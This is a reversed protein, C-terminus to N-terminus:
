NIDVSINGINTVRLDKPGSAKIERITVSTGPRAREIKDRTPGDFKNGRIQIPPFGEMKVEFAVVTLNLDFPFDEFKAEITANKLAGASFQGTSKGYVQGAAQPLGKIRFTKSGMNKTRGGEEKVQVSINMEKGSVKTVDAIYQGNGAPRVGPGSVVINKPDVGPVGVEIPNDVGRYLVNMATPSIVVSPPAVNYNGEFPFEKTEGGQTLKIVGGWKREGTGNALFQIIGAGNRIKSEPLKTEGIKKGSGDYQYVLVEPNQTADYAGLFVKASFSDGQTVYTSKPIQVVQVDTFRLDSKGINRQLEEIVDAEATRVKAQIDTMFALIAALPFHEFTANEWKLNVDGVKQDSTNFSTKIAEQTNPGIELGLMFDRYAELEGRLKSANKEVLLYNASKELNDRGKPVKMGAEEIYGGTLEILKNKVDEVYAYLDDAKKKVQLAKDRWPGAKAPNEAAAADFQAYIARNSNELTAATKGLGEDLRTLADLIDKSINLALLATLVLYMMNIMKQRPTLKGGAM